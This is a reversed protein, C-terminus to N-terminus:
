NKSKAPILLSWLISWIACSQQSLQPTPDSSTIDNAPPGFSNTKDDENTSAFFPDLTSLKDESENLNSPIIGHYNLTKTHDQVSDHSSKIQVPLQDVMQFYETTPRTAQAGCQDYTYDLATVRNDLTQSEVFSPVVSVPPPEPIM